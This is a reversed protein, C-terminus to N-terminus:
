QRLFSMLECVVTEENLMKKYFTGDENDIGERGSYLEVITNDKTDYVFEFVIDEVESEFERKIVMTYRWM